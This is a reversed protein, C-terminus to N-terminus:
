LTILKEKIAHKVLEAVSHINLKDMLNIRHTAVTKVSLHLSSAIQKTNKGEAMLQLVERERGTLVSFPSPVAMALYRVYDKVVVEGIKPSLYTQNVTAARIARVLEASDCEEKLLYGSGGAALIGAVLHSDSHMSLALIKVEPSESMIQRTAEIGNLDPMTVDMLIVDPKLDRVLRLATRGSGAEGVVKMGPQNELVMRLGERVIKHDDVLLIRIEM